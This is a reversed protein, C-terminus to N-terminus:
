FKLRGNKEHTFNSILFDEKKGLNIIFQLFFHIVSNKKTNVLKGGYADSEFPFIDICTITECTSVDCGPDVKQDNFLRMVNKERFVCSFIQM